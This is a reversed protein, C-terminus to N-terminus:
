GCRLTSSIIVLIYNIYEFTRAKSINFCLNQFVKIFILHHIITDYILNRDVIIYIKVLPIPHRLIRLYNNRIM